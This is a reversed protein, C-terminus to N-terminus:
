PPTGIIRVRARPTTDVRPSLVAEILDEELCYVGERIYDLYRSVAKRSDEEQMVERIWGTSLFWAPGSRRALVSFSSFRWQGPDEVFGARVPNLSIYRSMSLVKGRGNIKEAHYGGRFLSGTRHHRRNYELSYRSNIYRMIGGIQGERVRVMLHYHTRMLCFSLLTLKFKQVACSLLGLFKEGDVGCDFLIEGEMCRNYLHCVVDDSRPLIPWTM